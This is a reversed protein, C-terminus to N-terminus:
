KSVAELAELATKVLIEAAGPEFRNCYVEYSGEGTAKLTPIYGVDDQSLEIVITNRFPSSKKIALGSEVFIEGPIAVIATDRSLRIAVIDFSLNRPTGAMTTAKEIKMRQALTLKGKAGSLMEGQHAFAEKTEEATFAVQPCVAVKCATALSVDQPRTEKDASAVIAEGLLRGIEPAKRRTAGSVDLHNIDGCTGNGFVSLFKAGYRSKLVEELYFPYDASVLTGGTTDLHLAFNTLSAKPSKVGSDFIFLVSLAPDIPGAPKIINPNKVGPNCKVDPLDKMFYRRNFAVPPAEISMFGVDSTKLAAHAQVIAKIANEKLYKPYDFDEFKDKGYKKVAQNHLY